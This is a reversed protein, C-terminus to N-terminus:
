EEAARRKRNRRIEIQYSVIRYLVVSVLIGLLVFVVNHFNDLWPGIKNRDAVYYGLWVFVNTTILAAAGDIAIFKRFRARTEQSPDPFAPTTM